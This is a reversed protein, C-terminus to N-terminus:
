PCKPTAAASSSQKRKPSSTSTSSNKGAPFQRDADEAIFSQGDHFNDRALSEIIVLVFVGLACGFIKNRRLDPILSGLCSEPRPM